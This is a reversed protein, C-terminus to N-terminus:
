NVDVRAKRRLLALNPVIIGVVILAAGFLQRSYIPEGLAVFAVAVTTVPELTSFISAYASGVAEIAVYLLTIALVTPVLAFALALGAQTADLNGVDPVGRLLTFTLGAFFIVYVSFTLPRQGRMMSQVLLLYGSFLATAGCAWAVGLVDADRMFADLFVLACGGTVLFLALTVRREIRQRYIYAGLVTVLAPYIYFILTATSAPLTEVSRLFCTSQLPYIICGLIATKGLGALSIRLVDRDTALYWLGMLLSAILFRYQLMETTSMGHMYGLKALIPLMGFCCASIISCILGKIM